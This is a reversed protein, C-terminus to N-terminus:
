LTLVAAFQHLFSQVADSFRNHRYPSALFQDHHSVTVPLNVLKGAERFLFADFLEDQDFRAALTACVFLLVPLVRNTRRRRLTGQM